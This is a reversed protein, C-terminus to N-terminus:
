VQFPFVLVVPPYSALFLGALPGGVSGSSPIAKRPSISDSPNGLTKVTDLVGKAQSCRLHFFRLSDTPINALVTRLFKQV